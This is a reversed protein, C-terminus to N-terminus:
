DTSCCDELSNTAPELGADREVIPATWVPIHQYCSAGSRMLETGHLRCRDGKAFLCTRCTKELALM